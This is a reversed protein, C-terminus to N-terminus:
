RRQPISLDRIMKARLDELDKNTLFNAIPLGKVPSNDIWATVAKAKAADPTKTTDGGPWIYAQISAKSESESFTNVRLAKLNKEAEDNKVKADASTAVVAGPLSGAFYYAELDRTAAPLPYEDIGQGRGEMIKVLISNRAAIMQALLASMTQEFLAAKSFAQHTGALAGSTASLIQSATEHVLAGAAGLVVQATAVGFNVSVNERALTRQFEAFHIDMVRLREDILKNRIAVSNASSKAMEALATAFAADKQKLEAPFNASVEPFQKLSAACGGLLVCAILALGVNRVLREHGLALGSHRVSSGYVQLM